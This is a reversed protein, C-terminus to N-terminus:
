AEGFPHMRLARGHVNYEHRGRQMGMPQALALIVAQRHRLHVLHQEQVGAAVDRHPKIVQCKPSSAPRLGKSQSAWSAHRMRLSGLDLHAIQAAVPILVIQEKVNACWADRALDPLM